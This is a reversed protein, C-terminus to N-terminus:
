PYKNVVIRDCRLPGGLKSIGAEYGGHTSDTAEIVTIGNVRVSLSSGVAALTIDISDGLVAPISAAGLQTPVDFGQIGFLKVQATRDAAVEALALYRGLGDSRAIATADYATGPTGTCTTIVEMDGAGVNVTAYNWATDTVPYAKGSQIGWVGDRATWPAGLTTTSDARNFDDSAAVTTLITPRGVVTAPLGALSDAITNAIISHGWDGPHIGDAADHIDNTAFAADVDALPIGNDAAYTRLLGNVTRRDYESQYTFEGAATTRAPNLPPETALLPLAGAWRAMGVQRKVNAMTQATTLGVGNTKRDNVSPIILVVSPVGAGYLTPLRGLIDSTRDGGVGANVVTLPAGIPGLREAVRSPLLEVWSNGPTSAAGNTISNGAALFVRSPMFSAAVAARTKTGTTKIAQEIADDTPLVNAGDLGKKGEPITLTLQGSQDMKASAQTGPAATITSAVGIGQVFQKAAQAEALLGEGSWAVVVLGGGVLKVKASPSLFAPIFADATSTLPNPLPNGNLDTLALKSSNATDNADYVTVAANAAKIGSVPDIVLQSEFAYAM